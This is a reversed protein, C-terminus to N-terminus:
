HLCDTTAEGASVAQQLVLRDPDNRRPRDFTRVIISQFQKGICELLYLGFYRCFFRRVLKTGAINAWWQIGSGSEDGYCIELLRKRSWDRASDCSDLRESM